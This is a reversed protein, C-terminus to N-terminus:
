EEKRRESKKIKKKGEEEEMRRWGGRREEERRRREGDCVYTYGLSFIDLGCSSNMNEREREREPKYTRFHTSSVTWARFTCSREESWSCAWSFVQSRGTSGLRLSTVTDSLPGAGNM